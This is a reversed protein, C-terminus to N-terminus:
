VIFKVVCVVIIRVFCCEVNELFFVVVCYNGVVVFRRVNFVDDDVVVILCM